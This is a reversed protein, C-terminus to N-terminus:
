NGDHDIEGNPVGWRWQHHFFGTDEEYDTGEFSWVVGDISNLEEEFDDVWPDFEKKTFLDTIGYHYRELHKNGVVLDGVDDEMWCFYRDSKIRAAHSVSNTVATHMEIVTEAWEPIYEAM